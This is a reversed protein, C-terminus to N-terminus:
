GAQPTEAQALRQREDLQSFLEVAWGIREGLSQESIALETAPVAQVLYANAALPPEPPGARRPMAPLWARALLALKRKSSVVARRSVSDHGARVVEAGIEAYINHAARIAPRCDRPLMAIGSEARAYLRTAEALLRATVSAVGASFVPAALFADPDVDAERLWQRPLYLRGNRADEGVDRAINTLQMATGLDTARALAAHRRVGMLLTMMAGVTGAVRAAYAHVDDLTEYRRGAADWAFGDLLAEPLERPMEHAEVVHAFARDAPHNLPAGRYAADLRERMEALGEAPDAADDVADDGLRCFAYLATAPDRVRRPLLLSAAHFSKSGVRLLDRCAALDQQFRDTM